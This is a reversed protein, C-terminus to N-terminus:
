ARFWRPPGSVFGVLAAGLAAGLATSMGSIWPLFWLLTGAILGFLGGGVASAAVWAGRRSSGDGSEAPPGAKEPKTAPPQAKGSNTLADVERLLREIDDDVSRSNRQRSRRDLPAPPVRM